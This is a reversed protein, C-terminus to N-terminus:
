VYVIEPIEWKIDIECGVKILFQLIFDIRPRMRDLDKVFHARIDVINLTKCVDYIKDFLVYAEVYDYFCIDKSPSIIKVSYIYGLKMLINTIEEMGLKNQKYRKQIYEAKQRYLSCDKKYWGPTNILDEFLKKSSLIAPHEIASDFISIRVDTEKQILPPMEWKISINCGIQILYQFIIDYNFRKNNKEEIIYNDVNQINFIKDINYTKSLTNYAMNYSSFYENGNPSSIKLDCICGSQLLINTMDELSLLNNEFKKKIYQSKQPYMNPIKRYWMPISIFDKFFRQTNSIAPHQIKSTNISGYIHPLSVSHTVHTYTLKVTDGVVNIVKLLTDIHITSKKSEINSLETQTIDILSALKRQSYNSKERISRIYKLIDSYGKITYKKKSNHELVLSHSIVPLYSLLLKIGFNYDGSELRYISTPEVSLTSCINKMKIQSKKRAAILLECFEKRNM